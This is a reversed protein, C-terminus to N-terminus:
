RDTERGFFWAYLISSSRFSGVSKAWEARELEWSFFGLCITHHRGNRGEGESM